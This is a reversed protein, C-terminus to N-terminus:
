SNTAFRGTVTPYGNEITGPFSLLVLEEDTLVAIGDRPYAEFAFALVRKADIAFMAMQDNAFTGDERVHLKAVGLAPIARWSTRPPAREAVEGSELDLTLFPSHPKLRTSEDDGLLRIWDSQEDRIWLVRGNQSVRQVGRPLPMSIRRQPDIVFTHNDATEEFLVCDLDHPWEDLAAGSELDMVYVGRVLPGEEVRPKSAFVAHRRNGYLVPFPHPPYERRRNGEADTIFIGSKRQVLIGKTDPIWLLGTAGPGTSTEVAIEVRDRHSWVPYELEPAELASVLELVSAQLAAREEEFTKAPAGLEELRELRFNRNSLRKVLRKVKDSQRSEPPVRVEGVEDGSPHKVPAALELLTWDGDAHTHPPGSLSALVAPAGATAGDRIKRAARGAAASKPGGAAAIRDLEDAIQAADRDFRLLARQGASLSDVLARLSLHHERTGDGYRLEWEGKARDNARVIAFVRGNWGEVAVVETSGGIWEPLPWM